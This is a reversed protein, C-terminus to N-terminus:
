KIDGIEWVFQLIHYEINETEYLKTQTKMENKYFNGDLTKTQDNIM